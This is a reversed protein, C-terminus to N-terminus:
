RSFQVGDRAGHPKLRVLAPTNKPLSAIEEYCSVAESRALLRFLVDQALQFSFCGDVEAGPGCVM